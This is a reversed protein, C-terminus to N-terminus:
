RRGKMINALCNNCTHAMTGSAESAYIEDPRNCIHCVLTIKQPAARQKFVVEEAKKKSKKKKVEKEVLEKQTKNDYEVTVDRESLIVQKPKVWPLKRCAKKDDGTSVVKPKDSVDEQVVDRKAAAIFEDMNFAM